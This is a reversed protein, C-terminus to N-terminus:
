PTVADFESWQIEVPETYTEWVQTQRGAGTVQDVDHLRDQTCMWSVTIKDAEVTLTDDGGVYVDNTNAKEGTEETFATVGQFKRSKTLTYHSHKYLKRSGDPQDVPTLIAQCDLDVLEYEETLTATLSM